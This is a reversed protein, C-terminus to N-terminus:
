PVEKTPGAVVTSHRIAGGSRGTVTSHENTSHRITGESRESV